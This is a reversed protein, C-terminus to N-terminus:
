ADAHLVPDAHAGPDADARTDTDAHANAHTNSEAGVTVSQTSAALDGGPNSVTLNVTYTGAAAYTWSATKGVVPPFPDPNAPDGMDWDYSSIACAGTDPRAASADVNVTLGVM